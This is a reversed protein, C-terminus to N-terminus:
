ARSARRAILAPSAGSGMVPNSRLPRRQRIVGIRCRRRPQQKLMSPSARRDRRQGAPRARRAAERDLRAWSRDTAASGSQRAQPDSAGRNAPDKCAGAGRPRRRKPSQSRRPFAAQARESSGSGIMPLHNRIESPSGDPAQQGASTRSVGPPTPKQLRRPAATQGAGARLSSLNSLQAVRSPRAAAAVSRSGNRVLPTRLARDADSPKREGQWCCDTPRRVALDRSTWSTGSLKITPVEADVGGGVAPARPRPCWASGPRRPASRPRARPRAQRSRATGTVSGASPRRGIIM